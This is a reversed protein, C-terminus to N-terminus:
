DGIARGAGSLTYAAWYVPKIGDNIFTLCAKQLADAITGRFVHKYLEIMLETGLEDHVPWQAGVINEVGAALLAPVLGYPEDGPGYRYISGDCVSLVFLRTATLDLGRVEDAHLRGDSTADPALRIRHVNLADVEPFEGHAVVHVISKGPLAECVAGETADAGALHTQRLHALSKRVREVELKAENLERLAPDGHSPNEVV